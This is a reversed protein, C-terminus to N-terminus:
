HTPVIFLRDEPWGARVRWTLTAAKIGSLNAADQACMRENKYIVFVNSRRNRAQEAHTAWRCNHKTYPGNNDIRDITHLISPRSGMDAFFVSFDDWEKCVKIGRGGYDHYSKATESNCRNRMSMWVRLEITIKGGSSHGHKTKAAMVAPMWLCGCSRKRGNRLKKTRATTENGCDCKCLWTVDGIGSNVREIVQLKSFRQGTLDIFTGM